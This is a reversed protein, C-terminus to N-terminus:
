ERQAIEDEAVEVVLHRVEVAIPEEQGVSEELCMAGVKLVPDGSSDGLRLDSEILPAVV